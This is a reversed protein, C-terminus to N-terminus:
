VGIDHEEKSPGRWWAVARSALMNCRCYLLQMTSVEPPLEADTAMVVRHRWVNHVDHVDRLAQASGCM